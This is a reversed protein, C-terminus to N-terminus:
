LETKLPLYTYPPQYYQFFTATKHHGQKELLESINLGIGVYTYRHSSARNGEFGSAYYGAQWEIYNQRYALLYKSNGYDTLFDAQTAHLGYEWRFDLHEAFKPHLARFYGFTAGALNAIFDEKSFGYDSFSDGFEMYSMIIFSSLAGYTAARSPSFGRKSFQSVLFQSTAYSSFVHGLKDMGGHSSDHQFWDEGRTHPRRSFYDWNTAGWATIVGIGIANASWFIRSENPQAPAPPQTQIQTQTQPQPQAQTQAFVSKGPFTTVFIGLFYIAAVLLARNQNLKTRYIKLFINKV